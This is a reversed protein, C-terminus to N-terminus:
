RLRSSEYKQRTRICNKLQEYRMNIDGEPIVVDLAVAFTNIQMDTITDRMSVVINYRTDFDDTDLFEMIREDIGSEEAQANKAAKEMEEHQSYPAKVNDSTSMKKAESANEVVSGIEIKEFRYKQTVEPYKQHDVESVFMELPRVYTKYDGYLAQYVVMEEMTESHRAVTIIQYLKNKFHRYFEGSKPRREM